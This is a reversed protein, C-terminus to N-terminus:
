EGKQKSQQLQAKRSAMADAVAYADDGCLGGEDKITNFLTKLENIRAESVASDILPFVKDRIDLFKEVENLNLEQTPRNFFAYCIKQELEDRQQPSNM